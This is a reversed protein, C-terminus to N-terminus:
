DFVPYYLRTVWRLTDPETMRNTVLMQYSIAPSSKRHETVYLALMSEAYDATASGGTLETELINGPVMVKLMFRKTGPLDRNTAIAVMAEFNTSDTQRIHLIPHNTEIAKQLAIYDKLEQIMRYVDATSPKHDFVQRVSILSLDKVKTKTIKLGYLKEDSEYFAKVQQLWTRIENQRQNKKLINWVNKLLNEGSDQEFELTMTLTQRENAVFSFRYTEGPETTTAIFGNMFINDIQLVKNNLTYISDDEQAGPWWTKWLRTDTMRKEVPVLPRNVEISESVKLRSPVLWNGLGIIGTLVVVIWIWKKMKKYNILLYLLFGQRQAPDAPVLFIYFFPLAM